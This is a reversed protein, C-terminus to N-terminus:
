VASAEFQDIVRNLEKLATALDIRRDQPKIHKTQQRTMKKILDDLNKYLVEYPNKSKTFQDM